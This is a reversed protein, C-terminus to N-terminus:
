TGLMLIQQFTPMQPQQMHSLPRKAGMKAPFLSIEFDVWIVLAGPILSSM